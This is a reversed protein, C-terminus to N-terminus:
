DAVRDLIRRIASVYVDVDASLAIGRRNADAITTDAYRLTFASTHEFTAIPYIADAVNWPGPEPQKDAGLDDLAM